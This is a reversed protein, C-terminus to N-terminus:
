VASDGTQESWDSWDDTPGRDANPPGPLDVLDGLAAVLTELRQELADMRASLDAIASPDPASTRAVVSGPAPLAAARSSPDVELLQIWRQEKQGSQLEVPAVLPDVRGSLGLLESEIEDTTAFHHM